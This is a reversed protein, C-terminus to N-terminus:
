ESSEANTLGRQSGDPPGLSDNPAVNTTEEQYKKFTEELGKFTEPPLAKKRADLEQQMWEKANPNKLLEKALEKVEPDKPNKLYKASMKKANEVWLKKEDSGQGKENSKQHLLEFRQRLAQNFDMGEFDIPVHSQNRLHEISVRNEPTQARVNGSFLCGALLLGAMALRRKMSKVGFLIGKM